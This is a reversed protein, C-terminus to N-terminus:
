VAIREEVGTGLLASLEAVNHAEGALNDRDDYLIVTPASSVGLAVAKEFGDSSDVDITKGRL